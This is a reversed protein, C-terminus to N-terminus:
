EGGELIKEARSLAKDAYVEANSFQRDCVAEHTEELGERLVEVCKILREIDDALETYTPMTEIAKLQRTHWDARESANMNNPIPGVPIDPHKAKLVRKRIEDLRSAHTM